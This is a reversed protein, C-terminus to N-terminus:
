VAVAAFSIGGSSRIEFERQGHEQGQEAGGLQHVGEKPSGKEAIALFTTGRPSQWRQKVRGQGRKSM